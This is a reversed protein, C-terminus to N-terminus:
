QGRKQYVAARRALGLIDILGDKDWDTMHFCYSLGPLPAKVHQNYTVPNYPIPYRDDPRPGSVVQPKVM